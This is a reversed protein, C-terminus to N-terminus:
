TKFLLKSLAEMEQNKKELIKHVRPSEWSLSGGAWFCQCMVYMVSHLWIMWAYLLCFFFSNTLRDLYVLGSMGPHALAKAVPASLHACFQMAKGGVASCVNNSLLKM